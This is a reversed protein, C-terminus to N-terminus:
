RIGWEQFERVEDLYRDYAVDTVTAGATSGIILVAVACFPAGPGCITSITLGALFAGIMGGEIITGQRATETLKDDATLISYGALAASVLIGVKGATRLRATKATVVVDNRGAAEIASYYAQDKEAETLYRFPKSFLRNSYRDLITDLTYGHAKKAQAAALGQPSTVRRTEEMIQNRMSNCFAAGESASMRGADVEEQVMRSIRRIGEAYRARVTADSIASTSFYIGAAELSERASKLFARDLSHEQRTEYPGHLVTSNGQANTM